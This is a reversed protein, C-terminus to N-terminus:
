TAHQALRRAFRATLATGGLFVAGGIALMAVMVLTLPPGVHILALIGLVIAGLGVLVWAGSSAEVAEYTFKGIRRDNDRVLRALEAQAPAGAVITGGFVLTAVALLTFPLINALALIGLVIGVAGGLIETGLGGGIEKRERDAATRRMTDAWRATVSAGHALLAAGILITAIATMFMPQYGTLGIIALVAAAGGGLLELSSGGTLTAM